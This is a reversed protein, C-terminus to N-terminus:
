YSKLFKEKIEKMFKLNTERSALKCSCYYTPRKCGTCLEEVNKEVEKKTQINVVTNSKNDTKENLIFLEFAAQEDVYTKGQAQSILRFKQIMSNLDLNKNKCLDKAKDNPLFDVSLPLARNTRARETKNIPNNIQISQTTHVGSGGHHPRWGEPPTSAVVGEQYTTTDVGSGTSLFTLTYYSSKGLNFEITLLKKDQLRRLTRKIARVDRALEKSLTKIAPYIGKQGKHKALFLLLLKEDSSLNYHSSESPNSFFNLVQFVIHVIKDSM